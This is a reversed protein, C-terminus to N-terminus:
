PLANFKLWGNKSPDTFVFAGLYIGTSAATGMLPFVIYDLTMQRRAVIVVSIITTSTSSSSPFSKM